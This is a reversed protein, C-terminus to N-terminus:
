TTRRFPLPALDTRTEPSVMRSMSNDTGQTEPRTRSGPECSRTASAFTCTRSTPTEALIPPVLKWFGRNEPCYRPTALRSCKCRPRLRVERPNQPCSLPLIGVRQCDRACLAGPHASPTNEHCGGRYGTQRAEEGEGACEASRGPCTGRDPQARARGGCGLSHVGDKGCADFHGDAGLIFRTRNRKAPRNGLIM